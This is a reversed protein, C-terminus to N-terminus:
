WRRSRPGTRRPWPRENVRKYRIRDSTDRQFQHFSVEHERTAPYMAVPVSVLGFSIVGSWIPRAM